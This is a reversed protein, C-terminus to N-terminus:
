KSLTLLKRRSNANNNNCNSTTVSCLENNKLKTYNNLLINCYIGVSKSLILDIEAGCTSCNKGLFPVIEDSYSFGEVALHIMLKKPNKSLVFISEFKESILQQMIHLCLKGISLVLNSPVTLGGQDIKRFYENEINDTSVVLKCCQSCNLKHKMKFATYGSVFILVSESFELEEFDDDFFDSYNTLEDLFSNEATCEDNKTKTLTDASFSVRGYRASKLGLFSCMRLKKESEIVQIILIAFWLNHM